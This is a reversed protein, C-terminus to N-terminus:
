IQQQLSSLYEIRSISRQLYLTEKFWIAFRSQFIKHTRLELRLVWYFLKKYQIDPDIQVLKDPDLYLMEVFETGSLVNRRIQM